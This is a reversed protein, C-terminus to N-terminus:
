SWEEVPFLKIKSFDIPPDDAISATSGEFGGSHARAAVGDLARDRREAL